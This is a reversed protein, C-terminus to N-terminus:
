LRCFVAHMATVEDWRFTVEKPANYQHLMIRGDRQGKYTKVVATEDKLEVVVDQDRAPPVNQQVVLQEGAFIRPEMSSGLTRVVFFDGRLSLGMPLEIWDLEQGANFAFRDDGQAAAYGYVPVRGRADRSRLRERGPVAAIPPADALFIEIAQAQRLTLDDRSRLKRALYSRDMKLADSLRTRAGRGMAELRENVGEWTLADDAM